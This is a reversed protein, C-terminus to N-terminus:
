THHNIVLKLQDDIEKLVKKFAQRTFLEPFENIIIHPQFQHRFWTQQRKIYQHTSICARLIAEEYSVKGLLYADLERVGLAKYLLYHRAAPDKLFQEVEDLAGQDMMSTFRKNARDKLVSREPNILIRIFAYPPKQTSTKQHWTSLSVETALFVELARAIRVKDQPFLKEATLPDAKKLSILADEVSLSRVYDRIDKPIEPIASLGEELSKLYFGTGGVLIPTKEQQHAEKIEILAKERWWAATATEHAKLISYLKHSIKSRDEKTPQATLIPLQDYVQMSDGNIIIGDLIESLMLSISSKGSATPGGIIIVTSSTTM